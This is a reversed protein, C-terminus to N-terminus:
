TLYGAVDFVVHAQNSAFLGVKGNAPLQVVMLNARTEGAAHNAATGTATSPGQASGYRRGDPRTRPFATRARPVTM